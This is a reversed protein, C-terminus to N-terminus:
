YIVKLPNWDRASVGAESRSGERQGFGEFVTLRQEANHLLSTWLAHHALAAIRRIPRARASIPPLDLRHGPAFAFVSRHRSTSLFLCAGLSSV